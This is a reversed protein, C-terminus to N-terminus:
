APPRLGLLEEVGAIARPRWEVPTYPAGDGARSLAGALRAPFGEECGEEGFGHRIAFELNPREWPLGAFGVLYAGLAACEATTAGGPKSVVAGARAGRVRSALKLWGAVRAPPADGEVMFRLRGAGRRARAAPALLDHLAARMRESRGCIVAVLLRAGPVGGAADLAAVLRLLLDGMGDRGMMMVVVREDARVGFSGALADLAAPDTERTFEPRLPYGIVRALSDWRTERRIRQHDAEPDPAALWVRLRAPDALRLLSAGEVTGQAFTAFPNEGLLKRNLCLDTHLVATPIGRDAIQVLKAYGAICSVVADPRLAVVADTVAEAGRVPLHDHLEGLLAHYRAALAADDGDARLRNWMDTELVGLARYLPDGGGIVDRHINLVQADYGAAALAACLGAAATQNGGGHDSCLVAIRRARRGPLPRLPAVQSARAAELMRRLGDGEEEAFARVQAPADGLLAAGEALFLARDAIWRIVGAAAPHEGLRPMHEDALEALARARRPSETSAAVARELPSAWAIRPHLTGDAAVLEGTPAYRLEPAPLSSTSVPM